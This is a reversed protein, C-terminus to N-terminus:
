WSNKSMSGNSFKYKKGKKPKMLLEKDRKRKKRIQNRSTWNRKNGTTATQDEGMVEDDVTEPNPDPTTSKGPNTAAPTAVEEEAKSKKYEVLYENLNGKELLQNLSAREKLEYRERKIARFARKKKSRISHGM